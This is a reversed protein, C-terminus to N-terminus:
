RGGGARQARMWARRLEGAAPCAVATATRCRQCTHCHDLLARYEADAGRPRVSGPAATM